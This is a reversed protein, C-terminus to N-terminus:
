EDRDTIKLHLLPLSYIELVYNKMLDRQSQETVGDHFNYGYTELALLSEKLM